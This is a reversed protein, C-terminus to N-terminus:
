GAHAKTTLVDIRTGESADVLKLPLAAKGAWNHETSRDYRGATSQQVYQYTSSYTNNIITDPM